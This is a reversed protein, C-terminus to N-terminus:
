ANAAQKRAVRPRDAEQPEDKEVAEGNKKPRSSIAKMTLDLAERQIKVIAGTLVNATSKGEILRRQNFSRDMLAILEITKMKNADLKQHLRAQAKGGLLMLNDAEHERMKAVLEMVGPNDLVESARLYKAVTTPSHGTQAGIQRASKGLDNLVVMEAIKKKDPKGM